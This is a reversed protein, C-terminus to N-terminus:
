ILFSSHALYIPAPHNHEPPHERYKWSSPQISIWNLVPVAKILKLIVPDVQTKLKNLTLA